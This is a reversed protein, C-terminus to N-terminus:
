GQLSPKHPNHCQVCPFDSFHESSRIGPLQARQSTPYALKEHCRLCPAKERDINLKMLKASPHGAGPGHCNECPIIAHASVRHESAQQPHCADCGETEVYNAPLSKWENENSKRYYGFTYGREWVGFDKPVYFHRAILIAAVVVFVIILPRWVHNGM